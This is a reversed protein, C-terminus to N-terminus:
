RLVGARFVSTDDFLRAGMDECDWGPLAAVPLPLLASPALSEGAAILAGAAAADLMPTSTGTETETVTTTGIVLAKATIARFPSLLKVLLGHGIVSAHLTQQLTARRDWFASRWEHARWLALLEMDACAVLIGSEDLLTLADRQPGRRGHGDAAACHGANLAAKTRPFVLWSLANFVDHWDHSRTAVEGREFVRREYDLARQRGSAAVFRIPAGGASIPRPALTAALRNLAALDPFGHEDLRAFLSALGAFAPHRPIRALDRLRQTRLPAPADAIAAL